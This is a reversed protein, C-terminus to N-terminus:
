GGYVAHYPSTYGSRTYMGTQATETSVNAPLLHGYAYDPAADLPSAQVLGDLPSAHVVGQMAQWRGASRIWAQGQADRTITGEAVNGFTSQAWSSRSIGETWVLKTLILDMAGRRFEAANLFRGVLKSGITAAIVAVVYQTSTWSGGATPSSYGAAGGLLGAQGQGGFRQVAWAVALKGALRPIFGQLQGILGGGTLLGGGSPNRRRRRRGGSSSARRRRRRRPANAEYVAVGPNRRRRRRRRPSASPASARRRRKKAM